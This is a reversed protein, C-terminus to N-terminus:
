RIRKPSRGGDTATVATWESWGQTHSSEDGTGGFGRWQAEYIRGDAGLGVALLETTGPLALTIASGTLPSASPRGLSTWPGLGQSSESRWWLAGNDGLASVLAGDAFPVVSPAGVLLVGPPADLKSWVVGLYASAMRAEWLNGDTDVAVIRRSDAGVL